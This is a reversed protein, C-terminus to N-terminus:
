PAPRLTCPAACLVCPVPHLACCVPCLSCPVPCLSCPVPCLACPAPCLACPAPCLACPAPCLGQLRCGAGQVRHGTGQAHLRAGQARLVSGQARLPNSIPPTRVTAWQKAYKGDKSKIYFQMVVEKLLDIKEMIWVFCLIICLWRTRVGRPPTPMDCPFKTIMRAYVRFAVWVRKLTNCVKEAYAVWIHNMLKKAELKGDANKKRERRGPLVECAHSLVLNLGHAACHVMVYKAEGFLVKMAPENESGKDSTAYAQGFDFRDPYVGGSDLGVLALVDKIKEGVVQGRKDPCEVLPLVFNFVNMNDDGSVRYKETYEPPSDKILFAVSIFIVLLEKCGQSPM